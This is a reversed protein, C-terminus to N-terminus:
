TLLCKKKKTAVCWIVSACSKVFFFCFFFLFFFLLFFFFLLWLCLAFKACVFFSTVCLLFFFVFSHPNTSQISSNKAYIIIESMDAVDGRTKKDKCRLAVFPRLEHNINGPKFLGIAGTVNEFKKDLIKNQVNSRLHWEVIVDDMDLTVRTNAFCLM